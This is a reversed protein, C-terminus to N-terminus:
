HKSSVGGGLGVAGLIPGSPSCRARGHSCCSRWSPSSSSRGAPRRPMPAARKRPRAMSARWRSPLGAPVHRRRARAVRRRSCTRGRARRARAAPSARSRSPSAARPRSPRATEKSSIKSTRSRRAPTRVRVAMAAAQGDGVDDAWGRTDVFLGPDLPAGGSDDTPSPSEARREARLRRALHLARDGRQDPHRHPPTTRERSRSAALTQKERVCAQVLHEIDRSTVKLRQSFLYQALADQLDAARSTASASRRADARQRVIQELEAQSRPTRRSISPVKRRASSSSPRTTPRASSCASARRADGLPRHRGRLHRRPSRGGQRERGRALPLQVQGEGRRPRDERAPDDGQRSRLRRGEGRRAQSILINPPSIDRHVIDLARGTEPRDRRARVLPRQLGRMM